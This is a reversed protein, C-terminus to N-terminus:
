LSFSSPTESYGEECLVIWQLLAKSKKKKQRQNKKCDINKKKLKM